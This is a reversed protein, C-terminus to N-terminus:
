AATYMAELASRDRILVAPGKMTILAKHKLETLTRTVTERSVGVIQGIEEHKLPINVRLGEDTERGKVAWELLFHVIRESATRSLGLSRIHVCASRYDNSLQGAIALCLEPHERMLTGLSERKIFHVLCPDFTEATMGSPKSSIACDLGIFEGPEAIRVIVSKANSGTMTLKVRGKCLLFVGSLEQGEFSLLAGPPYACTYKVAELAQLTEASLASFFGGSKSRCSECRESMKMGYLESM